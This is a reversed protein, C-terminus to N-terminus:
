QLRLINEISKGVIRNKTILYYNGYFIHELNKDLTIMWKNDILLEMCKKIEAKNLYVKIQDFIPWIKALEGNNKDLITELFISLAAITRYYQFQWETISKFQVHPSDSRNFLALWDDGTNLINGM